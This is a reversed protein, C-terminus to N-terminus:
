QIPDSPQARHAVIEIADVLNRNLDPIKESSIVYTPGAQGKVLDLFFLSRVNVRVLAIHAPRDMLRCGTQGDPEEGTFLEITANQAPPLARCGAAEIWSLEEVNVARYAAIAGFVRGRKRLHDIWWDNQWNEYGFLMGQLREFDYNWRALGAAWILKCARIRWEEGPRTYYVTRIGEIVQGTALRTSETFPELEVEKHLLRQAVYRNFRDEDFHLHPPFADSFYAFPKQGELLLPLEYGTHILYPVERTSNWPRLLTKRDGPDFTVGFRDAIATLDTPKLDYGDALGPDDDAPSGLLCRLDDIKDVLLLAELVPSGHDPDLAQLIFRRPTNM